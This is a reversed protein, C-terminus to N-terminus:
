PAAAKAGGRPRARPSPVSRPPPGPGGIEPPHPVARRDTDRSRHHHALPGAGGLAEDEQVELVLAPEDVHHHGRREELAAPERQHALGKEPDFARELVALPDDRDAGSPEVREAVPQPLYRGMVEALGVRERGAVKLGRGDDFLCPGQPRPPDNTSNAGHSMTRSAPAAPMTSILM